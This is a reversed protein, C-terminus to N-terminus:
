MRIYIVHPHNYVIASSPASHGAEQEPCMVGPALDELGWEIHSQTLGLAQRSATSFLFM